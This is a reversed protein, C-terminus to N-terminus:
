KRGGEGAGLHHLASMIDSRVDALGTDVVNQKAEPIMQTDISAVAQRLTDQLSGRLTIGNGGAGALERQMDAVLVDQTENWAIAAEVGEVENLRRFQANCRKLLGELAAVRENAQRLAYQTDSFDRTRSALHRRAEALAARVEGAHLALAKVIGIVPGDVEVVFGAKAEREVDALAEAAERLLAGLMDNADSAYIADSLRKTLDSV